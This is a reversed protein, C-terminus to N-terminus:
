YVSFGWFGLQNEDDESITLREPRAEQFNWRYVELNNDYDTLYYAYSDSEDLFLNKVRFNSNFVDVIFKSEINIWGAVTLLGDKEDLVSSAFFIKQSDQSWVGELLDSNFFSVQFASRNTLEVVVFNYRGDPNQRRCLMFRGDPSVTLRDEDGPGYTLREPASDAKFNWRFAKNSSHGKQELGSFYLGATKDNYAIHEIHYFDTLIEEAVSKGDINIRFLGGQGGATKGLFFVAQSGEHYFPEPNEHEMKTLFVFENKVFDFFYLGAPQGAESSDNSSQEDDTLPPVVAPFGRASSGPFIRGIIGESFLSLDRGDRMLTYLHGGRTFWLRQMDSISRVLNAEEDRKKQQVEREVELVPTNRLLRNQVFVKLRSRAFENQPDYSLTKHYYDEAIEGYGLQEFCFGIRNYVRFQQPKQRVLEKFIRVAHAWKQENQYSVGELFLEELNKEGAASFSVFFCFFFLIRM